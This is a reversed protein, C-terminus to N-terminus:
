RKIGRHNLHATERRLNIRVHRVDHQLERRNLIEVSTQHALHEIGVPRQHAVTNPYPDAERIVVLNLRVLESEEVGLDGNRGTAIPHLRNIIHRSQAALRIHADRRADGILRRHMQQRSIRRDLDVDDAPVSQRGRTGPHIQLM